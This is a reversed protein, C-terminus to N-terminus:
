DLEAHRPMAAKGIAEMKDGIVEMKKQIEDKEEKTIDPNKRSEYLSILQLRLAEAQKEVVAKADLIEQTELPQNINKIARLELRRAHLTRYEPRDLERVDLDVGGLAISIKRDEKAAAIFRNNDPTKSPRAYAWVDSKTKDALRDKLRSAEWDGKIAKNGAKRAEKLIAYQRDRESDRATVAAM